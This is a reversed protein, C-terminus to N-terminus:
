FIGSELDLWLAPRVCGAKLRISTSNLNGQSMVYAADSQNEGPSRLWWWGSYGARELRGAGQVVAWETPMVRSKTNLDERNVYLYQNAEACSLLFIKDLTNNGGNTHWEEEGQSPSNDVETALIATQETESFATSLFKNNLWQRLSCTEWTVETDPEAHYPKANLGYKSLLLVKGNQAELVIWEIEEPGNDLNNDQEYHGFVLIDGVTFGAGATPLSIREAATNGFVASGEYDTGKPYILWMVQNPQNYIMVFEVQGNTLSYAIQGEQKEQGTVSFGLGGLYVGFNNYGSADVGRYTVITGGEASEEVQDEAVNAMAGYSPATLSPATTPIVELPAFISEALCGSMALILAFVTFVLIMKKM